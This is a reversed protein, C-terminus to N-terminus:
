FFNIVFYILLNYIVSLDSYLEHKPIDLGINLVSKTYVHGMCKNLQLYVLCGGLFLVSM